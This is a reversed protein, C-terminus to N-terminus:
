IQKKSQRYKIFYIIDVIIFIGYIIEIKNEKIIEKFPKEKREFPVVVFTSYVEKDGCYYSYLICEGGGNEIITYGNGKYERNSVIVDTISNGSKEAKKAYKIEGTIDKVLENVNVNRLEEETLKSMIEQRIKNKSHIKDFVRIGIYGLAICILITTLVICIIKYKRM